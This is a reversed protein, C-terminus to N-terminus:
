KQEIDCCKETWEINKLGNYLEGETHKYMACGILQVKSSQESTGYSDFRFYGKNKCNVNKIFIHSYCNNNNGNHYSICPQENPNSNNTSTYEGGDVEIYAHEGLGGGICQIYNAHTDITTTNKMRCNIFKHVYTGNGGCEDHICYRTNQTEIDLNEIVCDTTNCYIPQFHTATAENYDLIAKVKAGTMFLLHLGNGVLAGAVPLSGSRVLEIEEAFEETMDYVGPHVIIKSNKYQVAAGIGDRLRTYKYTPGVHFVHQAIENLEKIEGGITGYENTIAIGADINYASAFRCFKATPYESLEVVGSIPTVQQKGIRAVINKGEDFLILGCYNSGNPFLSYYKIKKYNDLSIYESTCYTTQSVDVTGDSKQLGIISCNRICYIKKDDTYSDFEITNIEGDITDYKDEWFTVFFGEGTGYGPTARIYKANPIDTLVCTGSTQNYAMPSSIYSAENDDEYFCIGTSRNPASGAVTFVNGFDVTKAWSPIKIFCTTKYDDRGGGTLIKGNDYCLIGTSGLTTYSSDISLKKNDSELNGIRISNLATTIEIPNIKKGIDYVDEEDNLYVIYKYLLGSSFRVYSIDSLSSIKVSGVHGVNPDYDGFALARVFNKNSDYGLVGNYNGSNPFMGYWYLINSEKSIEIFDTTRYEKQSADVNGTNKNLLGVVSFSSIGFFADSKNRFGNKVKSEFVELDLQSIDATNTAVQASVASGDPLNQMTEKIENVYGQTATAASQASRANEQATTAAAEATATASQAANAADVAADVAEMAKNLPEESLIQGDHFRVNPKEM